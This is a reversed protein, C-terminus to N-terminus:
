GHRSCLPMHTDNTIVVFWRSFSLVQDYALIPLAEPSSHMGELTEELDLSEELARLLEDPDFFTMSWEDSKDCPNQDPNFVAEDDSSLLIVEELDM